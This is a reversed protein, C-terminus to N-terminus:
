LFGAQRLQQWDLGKDTGLLKAVHKALIDTEINIRAGIRRNGLTTRKLTEPILATTFHHDGVEVLTLSIGDVCISGKAVMFATLPQPVEVKIVTQAPEQSISVLKGLGDVHGQVWHGGLRDGVALAREINVREGVQLRGLNTRNLSEQIVRFTCESGHIGTVTLCAGNVALRAGVDLDDAMVAGVDLTLDLGGDSRQIRSVAVAAEILGTFM